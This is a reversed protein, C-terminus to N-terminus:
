LCLAAFAIGMWRHFRHVEDSIEDCQCRRGPVRVDKVGEDSRTSQCEDTLFQVDGVGTDVQVTIDCDISNFIGGPLHFQKLISGM